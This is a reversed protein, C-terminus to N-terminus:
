GGSDPISSAPAPASRGKGSWTQAGSFIVTSAVTSMAAAAIIAGFQEDSLVGSDLGARAILFSFEAAPVLAATALIATQRSTLLRLLSWGFLSKVVLILALIALITAWEDWIVKPDILMGISVFFLVAFVERTPLLADVVRHSHESESVVLGALFAGLALSLGAFDSILATGLALIAIALYFLERPQEAAVRKLVVPVVRLGIVLVAAVFVFAKTLALALERFAMNGSGDAAIAGLGVILIVGWLDQVISWAVAVRGYGTSLDGRSELLKVLVVSSTIAAAAGVYLSEKDHWGLGLGVFWAAVIVLAAQITAGAIVRPGASLLESLSFHIGIGFLLLVVGFDAILRLTETDGVFGPTFPSIVVGAAVYGVISALRLRMALWGGAFAVALSVTVDLLISPSHGEV